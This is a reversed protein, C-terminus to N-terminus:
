SWAPEDAVMATPWTDILRLLDNETADLEEYVLMADVFEALARRLLDRSHQMAMDRAARVEAIAADARKKKQDVYFYVCLAGIVTVVLGAIVSFLFAFFAVGVAILAPVAYATNKFTLEAIRAQVTQDWAADLRHVAREEPEDTSGKWGVFGLNQAYSSHQPGLGLVVSTVAKSRYGMTFRGTASRFDQQGAGVAVRQTQISVGLAGPSIASMTQLSVADVTEELAEVQIASRKEARPLDGAEDIVAEHYAVDRRLPLEEEDYETVLQELLDDLHDEIIKSRPADFERVQTYDEIMSPLAAASELQARVEPWQPSTYALAAYQDPDVRGRHVELEDVWKAIQADVVETRARLETNWRTLMELCVASGAPGFGNQAAAELIVAFERTLATPDLASFYHRLWRVSAEERNQRRLVLAFFLSTKEPSRSFAADISKEAIEKDDRSWAALAVLAPALWYRPSEIMLEESVASAIENTVNGIDFAQLLGVSSRRVVAYHGFQRDLEAKLSGVKTESRQVNATRQATMVYEDFAAKLERLEASTTDLDQHIRGIGVQLDAVSSDLQNELSVLRSVVPSLDVRITETM